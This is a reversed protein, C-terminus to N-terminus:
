SRHLWQAGSCTRSTGGACCRLLSPFLYPSLSSQTLSRTLASHLVSHLVSHLISHLVSHLVSHLDSHPCLLPGLCMRSTGGLVPGPYFFLSLLSCLSPREGRRAVASHNFTYLYTFALTCLQVHLLCTVSLVSCLVLSRCRTTAMQESSASKRAAAGRADRGHAMMMMGRAMYQHGSFSWSSIVSRQTCPPQPSALRPGLM